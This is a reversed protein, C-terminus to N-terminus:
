VQRRRRILAIGMLGSGLLMLSAPEPVLLDATSIGNNVLTYTSGDDLTGAVRSTATNFLFQEIMVHPGLPSLFAAGEGSAPAFTEVFHAGLQGNAQLGFSGSILKGTALTIDDAAGTAGTNAFALGGALTASPAGNHNGPDARLAIDIKKYVNAPTVTVDAFLYLGYASGLGAPTVNAAGNTFGNINLIFSDVANGGPPAVASLFTTMSMSDATFQGGGLSPNAQSLNWTFPVVGAMSPAATCITSATLLLAIGAQRTRM